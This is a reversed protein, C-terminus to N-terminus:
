IAFFGRLKFEDISFLYLIHLGSFYGKAEAPSKNEMFLM